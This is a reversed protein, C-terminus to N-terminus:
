IVTDAVAVNLVQDHPGQLTQCCPERRHSRQPVREEMGAEEWALMQALGPLTSLLCAAGAQSLVRYVPSQGAGAVRLQM